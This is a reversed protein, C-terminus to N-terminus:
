GVSVGSSGAADSLRHGPLAERFDRNSLLVRFEEGLWKEFDAATLRVEDVIEPRGDVVTVIWGMDHSRLREQRARSFRKASRRSFILLPSSGSKMKASKPERRMGSRRVAPRHMPACAAHLGRFGLDRLRNELLTLEAYSAIRVIADVDLTPRKASM